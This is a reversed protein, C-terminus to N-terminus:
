LRNCKNKIQPSIFHVRGVTVATNNLFCEDIENTMNDNTTVAASLKLDRLQQMNSCSGAM